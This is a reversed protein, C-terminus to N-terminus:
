GKPILDLNEITILRGRFNRTRLSEFGRTITVDSSLDELVVNGGRNTIRVSATIPVHVILSSKYLQRQNGIPPQGISDIKADRSSRIHWMGGTEPDIEFTFGAAMKLAEGKSAARVSKKVDLITRNDSSALISVEGYLNFIDIITGPPTEAEHHETDNYYSGTVEWVDNLSEIGLLNAIPSSINAAVTISTGIFIAAILLATERGSFIPTGHSTLRSRARAILKLCVWALIVAPWYLVFGANV